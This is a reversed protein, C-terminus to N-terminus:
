LYDILGVEEMVQGGFRISLRQFAVTSYFPIALQLHQRLNQSFCLATLSSITVLATLSFYRLHITAEYTVLLILSYLALKPRVTQLNAM